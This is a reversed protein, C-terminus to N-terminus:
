ASRKLNAITVPGEDISLLENGTMQAWAEVDARFAPDDAQVKLVEGAELGNMAQSIRVIPMPCNLGCCDLEHNEM